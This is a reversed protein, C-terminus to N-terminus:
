KANELKLDNILISLGSNLIFSKMNKLSEQSYFLGKCSSIEFTDKTMKKIFVHSLRKNKLMTYEEQNNSSFTIEEDNNSNLAFVKSTDTFINQCFVFGSNIQCSLSYISDISERTPMISTHNLESIQTGCQQFFVGFGENKPISAAASLSSLLVFLLIKM